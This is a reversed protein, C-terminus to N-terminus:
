VSGQSGTKPCAASLAATAAAHAASMASKALKRCSPCPKTGAAPGLVCVGSANKPLAAFGSRWGSSDSDFVAPITQVELQISPRWILRSQHVILISLVITPSEGLEIR